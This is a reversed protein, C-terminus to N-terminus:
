GSRLLIGLVDPTTFDRDYVAYDFQRLFGIEVLQGVLGNARAYTVGLRREVQRVTFIPQALAFDIRIKAKLDVQM